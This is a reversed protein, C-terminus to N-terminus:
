AAARRSVGLMKLAEVATPNVPKTPLPAPMGAPPDDPLDLPPLPVGRTPSLLNEDRLPPISDPAHLMPVLFPVRGKLGRQILCAASGQPMNKLENPHVLFQEEWVKTMGKEKVSSGSFLGGEGLSYNIVEREVTKTGFLQSMTEATEASGVQFIIKNRSSEFIAKAMGDGHRQLDGLSQHAFIIGVRAGRAKAILGGVKPYILDAFEDLYLFAPKLGPKQYRATLCSMLDMLLLTSVRSFSSPYLDAALDVYLIGGKALTERINISPSTTNLAPAFPSGCLATLKNVLGQFNERYLDAKMGSVMRLRLEKAERCDPAERLLMALADQNFAISRVQEMTPVVNMKHFIAFLDYLFGQAQEKYYPTATNDDQYFAQHFREAVVHPDQDVLPNYTDSLHPKSLSLYRSHFQRGAKEVYAAVQNRMAGKPDIVVVGAGRIIDQYIWPLQCYYNKGVGTAGIVETHLMRSEEGMVVQMPKPSLVLYCNGVEEKTLKEEPNLERGLPAEEAKGYLGGRLCVVVTIISGLCLVALVLMRNAM